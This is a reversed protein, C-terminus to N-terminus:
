VSRDASPRIVQDDDVPRLDVPHQAPRQQDLRELGPVPEAAALAAIQQELLVVGDQEIASGPLGAVADAELGHGTKEV